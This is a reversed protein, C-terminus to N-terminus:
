VPVRGVPETGPRTGAQQGGGFILPHPKPAGASVYLAGIGMPGYCKHGSLSLYDVDLDLVDVQIKGVAQAADCHFLVGYSHAFAAAERVPQVVGTENNVLMVSTFLVDNGMLRGFAEVDLLGRGDVPAFDVNFGHKKLFKAPEIVAKHEVASIVIRRRDPERDAMATALGIIALNNAETAGSTFVIESPSAGILDAVAVRGEAVISAAREGSLNPSGANGPRALASLMAECAEPAIPLTAFGDLYVPESGSQDHM